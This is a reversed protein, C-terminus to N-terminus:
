SKEPFKYRCSPCEKVRVGLIKGCGVKLGKAREIAGCKKQGRTNISVSDYPIVTQPQNSISSSTSVPVIPKKTLQAFKETITLPRSSIPEEQEESEEESENEGESDTNENDDDEIEEDEDDILPSVKKIGLLAAKIPNMEVEIEKPVYSGIKPPIRIQADELNTDSSHNKNIGLDEGLKENIIRVLTFDGRISANDRADTLSYPEIKRKPPLKNHTKYYELEEQYARKNKEAEQITKEFLNNLHDDSTIVPPYEDSENLEAEHNVLLGTFPNLNENNNYDKIKNLLVLILDDKIALSKLMCDTGCYDDYRYWYCVRGYSDVHTKYSEIMTGCEVCPKREVRTKIESEDDDDDDNDSSSNQLHPYIYHCKPCSKSRPGMGHSCKPCIKQAM